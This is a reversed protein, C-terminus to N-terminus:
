FGFDESIILLGIAWVNMWSGLFIVTEENLNNNTEIDVHDSFSNHFQSEKIYKGNTDAVGCYGVDNRDCPIVYADKFIKYSMKKNKLKSEPKKYYNENYLYKYSIM